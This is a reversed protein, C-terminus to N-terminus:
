DGAIDLIILNVYNKGQYFNLKAEVVVDVFKNENQLISEGLLSPISKYCFARLKYKNDVVDLMIHNKNKGVQKINALCVKSLMFTPEKFNIGFPQLQSLSAAFNENIANIPLVADVMLNREIIKNKLAFNIKEQLFVFLEDKKELAFSFGAAQSHGGGKILLGKQKAGIIINGLDVNEISRGSGTAIGQEEDVSYILAPKGYNEKIRGSIIGVIGSSWYPSGVFILPSEELNLSAIEQTAAQIIKDEEAQRQQNLSILRQALNVALHEEKELFLDLALASEGMRSGANICAGFSFGLTEVDLPKNINLCDALVKLGINERRHMIKLGQFVVARNFGVLPVMDCVTGLAVLDLYKLLNEKVMGATFYNKGDLHSNLAALSLFVLGATCLNENKSTDDNRKPNIFAVTQPIQTDTAHHDIIIVEIGKENAEAIEAFSVTGNDLLILIDPKNKLINELAKFSVGYGESYRNPIYSDVNANLNKLYSFLIATSTIGDVDYDGLIMIKENATLAKHIRDCFKQMDQLLFPDKMSNKLKPDLFTPIDALSVGRSLLINALLVPIKYLDESKKALNNDSPEKLWTKQTASKEKLIQMM